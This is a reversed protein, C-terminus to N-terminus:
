IKVFHNITSFRSRLGMHYHGKYETGGKIIPDLNNRKIKRTIITIIRHDNCHGFPSRTIEGRNNYKTPSPNKLDINRKPIIVPLM